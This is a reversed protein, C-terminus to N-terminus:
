IHLLTWNLSEIKSRLGDDLTTRLTIRCLLGLKPMLKSRQKGDWAGILICMRPLEKSKHLAELKAKFFYILVIKIRTQVHLHSDPDPEKSFRRTIIMRNYYVNRNFM